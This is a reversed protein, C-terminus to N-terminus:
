TAASTGCNGKSIEGCCTTTKARQFKWWTLYDCWPNYPRVFVGAHFGPTSKNPRTIVGGGEVFLTWRGAHVTGQPRHEAEEFGVQNELFRFRRGRSRRNRRRDHSSPHDPNSSGCHNKSANPLARRCRPGLADATRSLSLPLRRARAATSSIARECAPKQPVPGWTSM